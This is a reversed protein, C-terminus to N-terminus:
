DWIKNIEKVAEMAGIYQQVKREALTFDNEAQAKRQAMANQMSQIKRDWQDREKEQFAYLFRTKLLDAEPPITVKIGRGIALGIFYECSPRQYYYETSVAMDVGWIGIEEFGEYIALALMWSVTNTFYNGFTDTIEKLPYPTSTPIADWHQQMYIPCTMKSLDGLYKNVNQGRFETSWDFKGVKLDINGRRYWQGDEKKVSHIEFWRDYRPIHYFLNNVGWIEWSPDNFPALNKSDSCGVIAVKKKKEKVLVEGEQM